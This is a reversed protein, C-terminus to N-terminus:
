GVVRLRPRQQRLEQIRAAEQRAFELMGAYPVPEVILDTMAWVLADMRDFSDGPSRDFDPTFRCCQDELDSFHGVHHGRGQEYIMGVPEARVYKGRTAHVIKVRINQDVQHIAHEIMDGGNNGEAVIYDAQWLNYLRIARMVWESPAMRGSGDEFVYGHRRGDRGAVIIGTEDSDEGSTMAPDIAVIMRQINEPRYPNGDAQEAVRAADVIRERRGEDFWKRQFVAGAVDELVEAMIEQRGLRTGGYKRQIQGIFSSPLNPINELMSGRTVITFPDKLLERVIKIPRPTTVVVCQPNPGLRLGLMLNDWADMYRWTALEDCAAFDHEPGRLAEPQDASYTSAVAGNPWTIRRKTPEYRPMFWPPSINMIGSKGEVLVERIDSATRAVLAVRKATGKEVRSRVTEMLTRSKGWGRGALIFWKLWQNGNPLALTPEMQQPRAWLSWEWELRAAERSSLARYFQKRQDDSLLGLLEALSANSQGPFSERIKQILDKPIM